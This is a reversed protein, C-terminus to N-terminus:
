SDVAGAARAVVESLVELHPLVHLRPASYGHPDMGLQNHAPHAHRHSFHGGDDLDVEGLDSTFRSVVLRPAGMLGFFVMFLAQTTPRLDVDAVKLDGSFRNIIRGLPTVDFFSTPSAIVADLAIRHVLRAGRLTAFTVTTVRFWLMAVAFLSLATFIRLYYRCELLRAGDEASRPAIEARDRRSRPSDTGLATGAYWPM